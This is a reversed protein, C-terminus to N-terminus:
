TNKLIPFDKNKSGMEPLHYLAAPNKFGGSTFM